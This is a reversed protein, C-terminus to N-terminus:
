LMERKCSKHKVTTPISIQLTTCCKTYKETVFTKTQTIWSSNHQQLSSTRQFRSIHTTFVNFCSRSSRSGSVLTTMSNYSGRTTSTTTYRFQQSSWKRGLARGSERRKSSQAHNFYMM